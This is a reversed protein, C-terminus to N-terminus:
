YRRRALILDTQYIMTIAGGLEEIAAGVARALAAFQGPPLLLHDSHTALQDLWEGVSYRRRWEYSRLEPTDFLGTAAMAAVHESDEARTQGMPVYGKELAPANQAYARDLLARTQPDHTALNWFVALRGGGPLLAAAKTPGVVPDIWHWAQGSVVLDFTRGAPDWAEFTVVEVPIGHSRAVAAMREDPEVGLVQCGRATLLRAAKGTGCGVDLVRECPESVLADILATPYSPRAREYRQADLGFSQARRTEEHRMPDVM